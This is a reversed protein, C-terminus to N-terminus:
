RNRRYERYERPAASGDDRSRRYARPATWSDGRNEPRRGPVAGEIVRRAPPLDGSRARWDEGPREGHAVPVRSESPVAAPDTVRTRGRGRWDESPPSSPVSFDERRRDARPRPADVSRSRFDENGGPRVAPRSSPEPAARGREVGGTERGKVDAITRSRDVMAGRPALDDVGPGELRGRSPVVIRDRLADASAAPLERQRGLIPAMQGADSNATREIVRPAERVFGQVAERAGGERAHVVISRSTIAVTHGVRDGIRSGPIVDLRSTGTGFGGAGVFNWGRWDVTRTPFSGHMSFYINGRGALNWRRYYTEWWPSYFSYWGIPCWGVYNGTFGWYVWAPSYVSAPAWCWRSWGTDWFWSGYHHPFWGWPDYSWWTLGAPTYYWSGSSYPSWGAAVRPSWVYSSYTNNYNWDGYADLAVVDSDYTEDVYRSSATHAEAVADFRDASWVDFRDRSFSGRAIEPEQDGAVTLYSGAKVTYTGTRSRVEAAGARTVVVTGRRSDANIRARSGASLYITADDTDVRPISGENTGTAALVVSGAKMDIASFEDEEGQQDHLRVFRVRTGGGVHLVNGDALAIEARGREDTSLEDGASIPMNRRAEIQGNWRSDVTVDGSLERVYSYGSRKPSQGFATGAAVLALAGILLGIRKVNM